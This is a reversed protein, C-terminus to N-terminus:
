PRASTTTTVYFDPAVGFESPTVQLAADQWAESARIWTYGENSLRVRVPMAFGPVVDTWRYSLTDGQVRYELNPVMTTRLYQDFVKSLDIGSERTMYAEIDVGDVTAYRFVRNLGRLLDRWRRDDDVLQRITHLMNGGKYYMDGSGEANVGYSAVIPV